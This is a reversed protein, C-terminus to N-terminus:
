SGGKSILTITGPDVPVSTYIQYADKGSGSWAEITLFKTGAENEFEYMVVKEEKGDRSYVSTWDDEYWFKERGLVIADKDDAIQDLDDEDIRAGQDDALDKFSFRDLTLSIELEDDFEWEFFRNVGTNLNLCTLEHVVYDLKQQFDESTEQYQSVDRVLYTDDEYDFFTQTGADKITLTMQDDRSILHEKELTRIAAFREQFSKQATIDLM